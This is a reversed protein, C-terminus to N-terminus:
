SRWQSPYNKIADMMVSKPTLEEAFLSKLLSPSYGSVLACGYDNVKVPVNSTENVNWYVVSPMSYGSRAYMKRMLNLTSAESVGENFQMDSVIIIQKPLQSDNLDNAIATNLILQFVSYLNTDEVISDISNIREAVSKDSPLYQLKATRSFTIFHDKWVGQLREACYLALSLAIHIPIVAGVGATMSGSTDAVVITSCFDSPFFNPLQSWQAEEPRNHIPTNTIGGWGNFNQNMTELIVEHPYVAGTNISEEGSEVASLFVNFREQDNREFAKKSKRFCQSPVHAYNIEEWKNECMQTEIVKTKATCFKRYQKPTMAVHKAIQRAFKRNSGSERPLWKAALADTTASEIWFQSIEANLPRAFHMLDDFRGYQVINSFSYDDSTELANLMAFVARGNTRRGAGSRPDRLWFALQIAIQANEQYANAFLQALENLGQCLPAKYFFDLCSNLTSKFAVHGNQTQTLNSIAQFLPNQTDHNM